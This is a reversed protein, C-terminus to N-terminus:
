SHPLGEEVASGPYSSRRHGIGEAPHGTLDDGTLAARAQAV